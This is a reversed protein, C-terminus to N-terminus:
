RFWSTWCAGGERVCRSGAGDLTPSRDSRPKVDLALVLPFLPVKPDTGLGLMTLTGRCSKIASVTTLGLIM